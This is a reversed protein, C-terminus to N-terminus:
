ADAYGRGTRPNIIDNLRPPVIESIMYARREGDQDVTAIGIGFFALADALTATATASDYLLNFNGDWLRTRANRNGAPLEPLAPQNM